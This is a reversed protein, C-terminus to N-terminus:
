WEGNMEEGLRQLDAQFQEVTQKQPQQYYPYPGSGRNVVRGKDQERALWGTIFRKIGRSTKRNRVNSDLWGRMKRIEQEVDVAPYLPKLEELYEFSVPWNKGDNLPLNIFIELASKEVDACSDIEKELEKELEKEREIEPPFKDSMQGKNEKENQGSMQGTRQGLLTTKEADIRSRYERKRDAETSSRGIFNQIDMMYIAGNDLIEILGLNRFIELAKEVTGVQHNTLTALVEPTYPILDKYMLRGENRLSKLYLKLLIDSYIYGDPMHQLIKLEDSDFFGEKLKLYYYKKNDSM